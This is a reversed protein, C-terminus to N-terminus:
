WRSYAVRGTCGLGVLGVPVRDRKMVPLHYFYLIGAPIHNWQLTAIRLSGVYMGRSSAFPLRLCACSPASALYRRQSPRIPYPFM